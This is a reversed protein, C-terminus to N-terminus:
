ARELKVTNKRIDVIRFEQNVPSLGFRGTKVITSATDAEEQTRITFFDLWMDNGKIQLIDYPEFVYM